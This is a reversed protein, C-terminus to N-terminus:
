REDIVRKADHPPALRADQELRNYRISPNNLNQGLTTTLYHQLIKDSKSKGISHQWFEVWWSVISMVLM